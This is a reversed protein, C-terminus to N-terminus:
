RKAEKAFQRCRAVETDFQALADTLDAAKLDHSPVGTATAFTAGIWRDLTEAASFLRDANSQWNSEVAPDTNPAGTSIHALVPQLSNDIRTRLRALAAAYEDRMNTLSAIAEPSMEQETAVPFREALRHLAHARAMIADSNELLRDAFKQFAVADSFQGAIASQVPSRGEPGSVTAPAPERRTADQTATIQLSVRPLGALADEVQQVRKADLGAGSVIVHDRKRAVEIPDGLDAGISHLAALVRIEDDPGAPVPAPGPESHAPPPVIPPQAAAIETSESMPAETMEVWEDSFELRERVAHLDTRSLFITATRIPSTTTTTRVEYLGAGDDQRVEDTKQSLQDRWLAFADASLPDEWRYHAADFLQKVPAAARVDTRAFSAHRLQFRVPRLPRTALNQKESAVAKRLLEAARASPTDTFLYMSLGIVACAAAALAWAMRSHLLMPPKRAPEIEKVREFQRHLDTWASPPPPLEPALLNKHYHVYEGITKKLDDLQTRCAWCAELHRAIRKADKARLEGDSYRLLHTEDPHTQWDLM